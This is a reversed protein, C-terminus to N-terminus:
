GTSDLVFTIVGNNFDCISHIIENIGIKTSTHRAIGKSRTTGDHCFYSNYSECQYTPGLLKVEDECVYAPLIQTGKKIKISFHKVGNELVRNATVCTWAGSTKIKISPL